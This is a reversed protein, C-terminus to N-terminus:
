YYMFSLMHSHGFLVKNVLVPPQIRSGSIGSPESVQMDPSQHSSDARPIPADWTEEMHIM